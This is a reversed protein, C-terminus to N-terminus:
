ITKTANEREKDFEALEYNVQKINKSKKIVKIVDRLPSEGLIDKGNNNVIVNLIGDEGQLDLSYIDSMLPDVGVVEVEVRKQEVNFIVLDGSKVKSIDPM